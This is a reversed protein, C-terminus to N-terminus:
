WQNVSTLRDGPIVGEDLQSIDALYAPPKRNDEFGDAYKRLEQKQTLGGNGGHDVGVVKKRQSGVPSEVDQIPEHAPKPLLLEPVGKRIYEADNLRREINVKGPHVVRALPYLEATAANDIRLIEALAPQHVLHEVEPPSPTRAVLLVPWQMVLFCFLFSLM